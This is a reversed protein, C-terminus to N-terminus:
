NASHPLGFRLPPNDVPDVASRRRIVPMEAKLLQRERAERRLHGFGVVSRGASDARSSNFRHRHSVCNIVDAAQDSQPVSM